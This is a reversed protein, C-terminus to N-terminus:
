PKPPRPPPNNTEGSMDGNHSHNSKSKAPFQLNGYSRGETEQKHCLRQQYAEVSHQVAHYIFRYQPETQVMGSRQLRITLVCQQIDVEQQLGNARISSLICDIVIFTGTRGIGASCHVVVPGVTVGAHEIEKLKDNVEDVFGLVVGPDQPVGHDPWAKFHFQYITRTEEREKHTVQLQRLTYYPNYTEGTNVLSLCGHETPNDPDPWYHACRNRGREIENTIMVVVRVEEQWIMRWFDTITSPLCGQTAIYRKKPIVGNIYNANIYDSGPVEEGGDQNLVVRTHDFPLINRFRNKARNEPLVGIKRSYISRCETQQMLEFEEWFGAKGYMHENRTELESIRKGINMPLFSTSHFPHKLDLVRGNIEVLPNKKYHEVVEMLSSFKPGGGMDFLGNQQRIIVHSIEEGVRTSLVYNGPSRVSSRVLYSGDQGKASLLLEADKSTIAGHFWRETAVEECFLPHNLEIVTGNKEKLQGSNDTYFQVLEGLTAFKEGGYLDYYDGGGTQIRIHTIEQGRRVSLTFDGPNNQSPRVLFSGDRGEELLKKEAQPGSLNSHFWRKTAMDQRAFCLDPFVTEGVLWRKNGYYANFFVYYILYKDKTSKQTCPTYIVFAHGMCYM